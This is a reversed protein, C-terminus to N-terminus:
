ISWFGDKNDLKSFYTAGSLHNTYHEQVIAKNLDRPDLYIHLSGDPNPPYTLSSVWETPQSVPATVRKMVMDDLTKEIQEWYDTPVKHWTQQVPLIYPDTWITYTRSMNGITDFSNSFAQKLAMIGWVQSPSCCSTVKPLQVKLAFKTPDTSKPYLCHVFAPKIISRVHTDIPSKCKTRNIHSSNVYSVQLSATKMM